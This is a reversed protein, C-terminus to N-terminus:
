MLNGFQSFASTGGFGMRVACLCLLTADGITVFDRIRFIVLKSHGVGFRGSPDSQENQSSCAIGIHRRKKGIWGNGREDNAKWPPNKGTIKKSETKENDIRAKLQM